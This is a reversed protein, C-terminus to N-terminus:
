FINGHLKRAKKTIKIVGKGNRRSHKLIEQRREHGKEIIVPDRRVREYQIQKALTQAVGTSTSKM